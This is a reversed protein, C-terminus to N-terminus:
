LRQQERQWEQQLKSTANRGRIICLDRSFHQMEAGSSVYITLVKGANNGKSNYVGIKWRGSCRKGKSWQERAGKRKEWGM